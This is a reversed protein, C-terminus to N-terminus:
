IKSLSVFKGTMGILFSYFFATKKDKQQYDCTENKYNVYGINCSCISINCVGNNCDQDTSCLSKVSNFSFIIIITLIPM